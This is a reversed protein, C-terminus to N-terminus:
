GAGGGSTTSQHQHLLTLVAQVEPASAGGPLALSAFGYGYGELENSWLLRGDTLNLAHLKGKSHAFVCEGDNLLTVFDYGLGGGPLDTVWIPKGTRRSLATVRNKLGVLLFDDTKM